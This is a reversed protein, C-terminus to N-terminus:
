GKGGRVKSLGFFLYGVFGFVVIIIITSIKISMINTVFVIGFSLFTFVLNVVRRKCEKLMKKLLRFGARLILLSVAVRIGKFAKEIVSISLFQEFFLSIMLIILFSPLVVGLTAAMAGAFGAIRYGAYTACNIAVPGPTSEAIVTMDLFEESTIWRKKEVCEEDILSIMAYGGGFTFAGIKLFTLFLDLIQKKPITKM